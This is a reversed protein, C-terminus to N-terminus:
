RTNWKTTPGFVPSGPVGPRLDRAPAVHNRAADVASQPVADRATSLIRMIGGIAKSWQSDGFRETDEAVRTNVRAVANASNANALILANEAAKNMTAAKNLEEASKSTATEQDTRVQQKEVLKDTTRNLDAQATDKDTMAKTQALQAAITAAQGASAIGRGLHEGPNGLSPIGPTGGSSINAGSTTQAGGLNAALIPNLGAAKMDAMGRQYATNAQQRAKEAQDLNDARSQWYQDNMMNQNSQFMSLQQANTAAQGQAGFMGGLLGAGAQLIGGFAGDFFGM